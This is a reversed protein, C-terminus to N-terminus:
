NLAMRVLPSSYWCVCVGGGQWSILKRLQVKPLNEFLTRICSQGKVGFYYSTVLMKEKELLTELRRFLKGTEMLKMLNFNNHAFEKLNSSDLIQRKPFVNNATLLAKLKLLDLM